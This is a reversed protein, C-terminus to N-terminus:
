FSFYKVLTLLICQRSVTFGELLHQIIEGPLHLSKQSITIHMEHIDEGFKMAKQGYNM